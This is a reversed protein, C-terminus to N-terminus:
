IIHDDIQWNRRICHRQTNNKQCDFTTQHKQECCLVHQSTFPSSRIKKFNDCDLAANPVLCYITYECCITTRIDPCKIAFKLSPSILCPFAPLRVTNPISITIWQSLWDHLGWVSVPRHGMEMWSVYNKLFERTPLILWFWIYDLDRGTFRNEKNPELVVSFSYSVMLVIWEEWELLLRLILSHVCKM